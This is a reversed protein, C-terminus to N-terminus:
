EGLQEFFEEYEAIEDRMTELLPDPTCEKDTYTKKYFSEIIGGVSDDLDSKFAEYIDVALKLENEEFEQHMKIAETVTPIEDESIELTIEEQSMDYVNSNNILAYKSIGKILDRLHVINGSFDHYNYAIIPPVEMKKVVKELEEFHSEMEGVTQFEIDGLFFKRKFDIDHFDINQTKTDLIWFGKGNEEADRAETTNMREVSGPQLFVSHRLSNTRGQDIARLIHSHIHGCIVLDCNSLDLSEISLEAGTFGCYEEFAQHVVLINFSNDPLEELLDNTVEIFEELMSDSRYTVGAVAVTELGLMMMKSDDLLMYQEIGADNFYNDVTYHNERMLMTHNGKIVFKKINSDLLNIGSRYVAMAKPSPNPKDFLDGAIIVMDPKKDAIEKMCTLYQSYFDEEREISGYQRHGLHLDSLIAIKM